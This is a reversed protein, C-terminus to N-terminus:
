PLCSALGQVYLPFNLVKGCSLMEMGFPVLLPVCLFPVLALGFDLALIFDHIRPGADLATQPLIHGRLPKLPEIGEASSTASAGVTTARKAQSQKKRVAKRLHDM